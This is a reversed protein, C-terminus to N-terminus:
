ENELKFSKRNYVKKKNKVIKNRLIPSRLLKALPNKKRLKKQKRIM